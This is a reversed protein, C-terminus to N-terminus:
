SIPTVRGEIDGYKTLVIEFRVHHWCACFPLLMPQQPQMKSCKKMLPTARNKLILCCGLKVQQCKAFSPCTLLKLNSKMERRAKKIRVDNPFWWFLIVEQFWKNGVLACSVWARTIILGRYSSFCM